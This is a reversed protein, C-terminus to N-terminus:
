YGSLFLAIEDPPIVAPTREFEKEDFIPSARLLGIIGKDDLWGSEWVESIDGMVLRCFKEEFSPPAPLDKCIRQLWIDLYGTNPVTAFRALIKKIIDLKEGVDDVGILLKSLIATYTPIVRPNNFCIDTAIGILAVVDRRKEVESRNLRRHFRRLATDVSGSNPYEKAHEHIVLLEEQFRLHRGSKSMWALKDDKVSDRVVDSAVSTKRANLSFGLAAMVETLSKLIMEGIEPNNVFIRYDDRFRLIRYEKVGADNLRESLSLDAYGLVLEAVFDMLVSGQPIGNTQGQNMNQLRADIINGILTHDNRKKKAEDRGHIAWAVSHTYISPYCNSIDTRYLFSYDLSNAVSAQEIGEWWNAIQVAANKQNPDSQPMSHCESRAVQEFSKLRTIILDWHDDQTIQNVLDAYLVPHIFELPRWSYRGATNSHVVHNVGEHNRSKKLAKDSLPNSRLNASLSRILKESSFYPPMGLTSYADDTLFFRRAEHSSLDSIKRAKEAAEPVQTEAATM